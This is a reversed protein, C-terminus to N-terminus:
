DTERCHAVAYIREGRVKVSTIVEHNNSDTAVNM